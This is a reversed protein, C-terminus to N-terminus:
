IKIATGKLSANCSDCHTPTEFESRCWANCNKCEVSKYFELFQKIQKKYEVRTYSEPLKEYLTDFENCSAGSGAWQEIVIADFGSSLALGIDCCNDTCGGHQQEVLEFCRYIKDAKSM